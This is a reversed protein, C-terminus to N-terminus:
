GGELDFREGQRERHREPRHEHAQREPHGHGPQQGPAVEEALGEEVADNVQGQHDRRDGDAIQQQHQEAAASGHAGILSESSLTSRRRSVAARVKPAV